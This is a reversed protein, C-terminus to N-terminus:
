GKSGTMAIAEIPETPGPELAEALPVSVRSEATDIESDMINELLACKLQVFAPDQDSRCIRTAAGSSALRDAPGEVSSSISASIMALAAFGIEVGGGLCDTEGSIFNLILYSQKFLLCGAAFVGFHSHLGRM